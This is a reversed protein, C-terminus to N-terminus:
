YHSPLRQPLALQQSPLANRRRGQGFLTAVQSDFKQLRCIEYSGTSRLSPNRFSTASRLFKDGALDSLRHSRNTAPAPADATRNGRAVLPLVSRSTKGEAVYGAELSDLRLITSPQDHSQPSRLTLHNA